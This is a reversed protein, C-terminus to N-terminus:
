DEPYFDEISPEEPWEAIKGNEDVTMIIYDGYEGPILNNPVYNNEISLVINGKVDKLHYSGADCVKYHIDAKTGVPWNLITGNDIDIEPCWLNGKRLPILNGETDEVGNVTADEWYRVGAEVLVTKIDIEKEVKITCLM